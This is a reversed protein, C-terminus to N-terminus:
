DGAVLSTISWKSNRSSAILRYGILSRLSASAIYGETKDQLRVKQFPADSQLGDTLEVVDVPRGADVIYRFLEHRTPDGLARAQTQLASM